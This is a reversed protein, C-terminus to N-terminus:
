DHEAGDETQDDDERERMARVGIRLELQRAVGRTRATVEGGISAADEVLVPGRGGLLHRPLAAVTRPHVAHALRRPELEAAVDAAGAPEDV